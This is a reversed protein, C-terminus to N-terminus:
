SGVEFNFPSQRRRHNATRVMMLGLQLGAGHRRGANEFVDTRPHERQRGDGCNGHPPEKLSFCHGGATL